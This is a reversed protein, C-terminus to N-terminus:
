MMEKGVLNSIIQGAYLGNAFITLQIPKTIIVAMCVKKMAPRAITRMSFNAEGQPWLLILKKIDKGNSTTITDSDANNAEVSALSVGVFVVILILASLYAYRKMKEMRRCIVIPWPM